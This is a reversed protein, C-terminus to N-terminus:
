VSRRKRSEQFPWVEIHADQRMMDQRAHRERDPFKELGVEFAFSICCVLRLLILSEVAFSVLLNWITEIVVLDSPQSRFGPLLERFKPWGRQGFGRVDASDSRRIYCNQM